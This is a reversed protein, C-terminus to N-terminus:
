GPSGVTRTPDSQPPQPYHLGRQGGFQRDARPPAAPAPFGTLRGAAIWDRDM